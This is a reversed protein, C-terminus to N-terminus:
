YLASWMVFDFRGPLTEAKPSPIEL